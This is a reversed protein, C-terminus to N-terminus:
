KFVFYREDLIYEEKTKMVEARHKLQDNISKTYFKQLKADFYKQLESVMVQRLALTVM